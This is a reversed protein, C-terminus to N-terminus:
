RKVGKWIVNKKGTPKDMSAQYKEEITARQYVQCEDYFQQQHCVYGKECEKVGVIFPCVKDELDM